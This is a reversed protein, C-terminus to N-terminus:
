EKDQQVPAPEPQPEPQAEPQPEQKPEAQPKSAPERRRPAAGPRRSGTPRGGPPELQLTLTHVADPPYDHGVEVPVIKLRTKGDPGDERVMVFQIRLSAKGLEFARRKGSAKTAQHIRDMEQQLAFLVEQIGLGTEEAALREEAALKPLFSASLVLLLGAGIVRHRMRM